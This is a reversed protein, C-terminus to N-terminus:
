SVTDDFFISVAEDKTLPIANVMQHIEGIGFGEGNNKMKRYFTTRNINMRDAVAEQTTGKEVIKGKLKMINVFLRDM